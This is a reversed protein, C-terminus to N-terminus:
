LGRRPRLYLPLHSQREQCLLLSNRYKPTRQLRHKREREGLFAQLFLLPASRIGGESVRELEDAELRYKRGWACLVESVTKVWQHICFCSAFCGALLSPLTVLWPSFEAEEKGHFTSIEVGVAIWILVFFVLAGASLLIDEMVRKKQHFFIKEPTLLEREDEKKHYANYM